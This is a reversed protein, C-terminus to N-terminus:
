RAKKNNGERKKNKTSKKVIMNSYGSEFGATSSNLSVRAYLAVGTYMIRRAAENFSFKCRRSSCGPAFVICIKSTYMLAILTSRAMSVVFSFLLSPCCNSNSSVTVSGIWFYKRARFSVTHHMMVPYM